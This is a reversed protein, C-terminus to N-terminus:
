ARASGPFDMLAQLGALQFRWFLEFAAAITVADRHGALIDGITDITRTFTTELTFRLLPTLAEDGDRHTVYRSALRLMERSMLRSVHAYRTGYAGRLLILVVLRHEILFQLFARARESGAANATQWQEIGGLERVRARMLRLLRGALTPTVIAHFLADKDAVYKYINSPSTGAREAVDALKAATFGKEAFVEAAAALVRARVEEKLRQPM